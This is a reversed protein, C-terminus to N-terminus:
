FSTSKKYEEISANKATNNTKFNRARRVIDQEEESLSSKLQDLVKAQWVASCFKACYKNYQNATFDHSFLVSQRVFLTHVADGVFALVVPSLNKAHHM